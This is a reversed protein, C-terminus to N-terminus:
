ATFQIKLWGQEECHEAIQRYNESIWMEDPHDHFALVPETGDYIQFNICKRIARQTLPGRDSFDEILKKDCLVRPVRLLSITYLAIRRYNKPRVFILKKRATQQRKFMKLFISM